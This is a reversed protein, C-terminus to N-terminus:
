EGKRFKLSPLLTKMREVENSPNVFSIQKANGEFIIQRILVTQCKRLIRKKEKKEKFSAITAFNGEQPPSPPSNEAGNL